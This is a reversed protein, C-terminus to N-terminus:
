DGPGLFIVDVGEVAAIEEVQEVAAEEEIQIVIFTQENAEKVYQALPMTCYPMDANAGDAGRRGLPSFKAWRVVEAAEAANDCRPYMIGHAGAELMRGMRMFEGKGPRAVVDCPGIRAARIMSTATELSYTHHEMDMWLGDMGMLSAMEFVSQDSFHLMMCLAPEGRRLKSKVKSRLM